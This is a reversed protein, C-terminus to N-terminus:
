PQEEASVPALPAVSEVQESAKNHAAMAYGGYVHLAAFSGLILAYLVIVAIMIEREIQATRPRNARAEDIAQRRQLAAQSADQLTLDANWVLGELSRSLTTYTFKTKETPHPM